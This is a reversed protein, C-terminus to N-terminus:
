RRTVGLFDRIAAGLEPKVVASMHNGPVDILRGAPLIDALAAASGNDDDVTGCVVGVPLTLARLSAESTDVFSDLLLRLAIPDGGTTKIFAAALWEPSGREHQGFHDLIHRFHTARAGTDTLGQLGMGAIIARGPMAGRVLMRAVTRGGLSYGGLDYDGLELHDILALGDDALIDPPYSSPEHPKASEGHGRLDPLILRFGAEALLAAHGYKIWNTEANSCYGHLLVLPRGEGTEHWALRVGDARTFYDSV